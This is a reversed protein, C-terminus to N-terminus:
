IRNIMTKESEHVTMSIVDEERSPSRYDSLSRVRPDPPSVTGIVPWIRPEEPSQESASRVTEVMPVNPSQFSEM